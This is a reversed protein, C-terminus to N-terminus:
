FKSKLDNLEQRLNKIEDLYSKLTHMAGDYSIMVNAANPLVAKKEVELNACSVYGCEPAEVLADQVKDVLLKGLVIPKNVSNDSFGVFVIDDVKYGSHVGPPINMVAWFLAQEVNGPGEFIPIRVQCLNRKYDIVKIEAQTIM